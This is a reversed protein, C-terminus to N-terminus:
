FEPDRKAIGRHRRALLGLGALGVLMLAWTSPEPVTTSPDLAFAVTMPVRLSCYGSLSGTLTEYACNATEAGAIATPHVSDWFLYTNPSSCVTGSTSSTFNGTWCPSTVNSLGFFMNGWNDYNAADILDYTDLDFVKLGGYQKYFRLRPDSLLTNDFWKAYFSAYAQLPTNRFRPTLGLDPVEYFLINRAGLAYLSEIAEVTNTEAAVVVSNTVASAGYQNLASMIDNGGIDLTYLTGPRPTSSRHTSAYLSVQGLLDAPLNTVPEIATPGTQAGAVAYDRGGVLSPTLMGLHLYNQYLDEVWTPGNSFHGYYNPPPGFKSYYYLPLSPTGPTPVLNGTALYNAITANGVDSLSDGFAFMDTYAAAPASLCALSAALVALGLGTKM